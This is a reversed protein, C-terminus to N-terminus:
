FQYNSTNELNDFNIFAFNKGELFEKSPLQRQEKVESEESCGSESDKSETRRLVNWKQLKMKMENNEKVLLKVMREFEEDNLEKTIKEDKLDDKQIEPKGKIKKEIDTEPITLESDSTNEPQSVEVPSTMRHKQQREWQALTSSKQHYNLTSEHQKAQQLTLFTKGCGPFSCTFEKKGKHKLSHYNLGGRSSFSQECGPVKCRYPTEGTHTRLHSRLADERKFCKSCTLFPCYIPKEPTHSSIHRLFESKYRFVKGCDPYTCSRYKKGDFIMEKLYSEDADSESLNYAAPTMPTYPTTNFIPLNNFNYHYFQVLPEM